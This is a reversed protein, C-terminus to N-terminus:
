SSATRRGFRQEVIQSLDRETQDFFDTPRDSLDGGPRIGIKIVKPGPARSFHNILIRERPPAGREELSALRVGNLVHDSQTEVIVQVGASALRALFRGMASQASAHLHAEPSDILLLAGPRAALSAVIIPLCYSLGFGFNGPHMWEAGLDDGTSFRIAVRGISPNAAVQLRTGPALEGLWAEAQKALRLKPATPHELQQLVAFREHASLIAATNEGRHGIQILDPAMSPLAYSEQPGIREPSLYSFEALTNGGLVPLDAKATMVQLFREGEPAAFQVRAPGTGLVYEFTIQASRSGHSLVDSAQGLILGFDSNLPVVGAENLQSLKTLLIAQLVSSKGVANAGTLLTLDAFEIEQDSLGKFNGFRISRIV